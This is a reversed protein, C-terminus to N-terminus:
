LRCSVLTILKQWVRDLKPIEARSSIKCDQLNSWSTAHNQLPSWGGLWGAVWGGVWGVVATTSFGVKICYLLSSNPPHRLPTHLIDLLHRCPTQLTYLPHRSPVFFTDSFNWFKNPALINKSERKKSGKIKPGLNKPNCIEGLIEQVWYKKSM